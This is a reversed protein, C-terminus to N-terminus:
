DLVEGGESSIHFPMVGGPVNFDSVNNYQSFIVQNRGFPWKGFHNGGM